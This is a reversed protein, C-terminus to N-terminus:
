LWILQLAVVWIVIASLRGLILQIRSAGSARRTLHGATMLALFWLWSVLICAAAYAARERGEFSLATTGIVGVTDLIAHPNLLSVSLSFLIQRKLPWDQGAETQGASGASRWATWGMYLLFLVGGWRLAGLLWPFQLILLSVGSVALLILATDCLAATLVVPLARTWRPQTAGQLFVFTNQVGLPLILGLALLFGALAAHLM